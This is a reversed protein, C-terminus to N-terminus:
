NGTTLQWHLLLLTEKGALSPQRIAAFELGRGPMGQRFLDAM